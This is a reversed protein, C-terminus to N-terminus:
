KTYTTAAGSLIDAPITVGMREAAATNISLSIIAGKEVAIQNAEGAKLVRALMKGTQVGLDYYNFGYAAIGGREISPEDAPFFPIDNDECVKILAELGSVVMNDTGIWVADVKGVLSQAATLVEASTSVTAEVVEIGREDCAERLKATLFVSNDEGSNYITGLKKVGPVIKLIVDVDDSVVIMDSVGTVNEDAHSKWDVVLGAGVPDTVASFVVPIGTGQAAKVSAQSDPTAISVIADVKDSVFKQAISAVLTMDNESTQYDFVVNEGEIYGEAAMGDIVGQRTSDLAPHTVIQSIGIKVMGGDGSCGGLVPLTLALVLVLCLGTLLTTLIKGRM